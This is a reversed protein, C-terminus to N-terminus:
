FFSQNVIVVDGEQLIVDPIKGSLIAGLDVKLLTEAGTTNHRKVQLNKSARRQLGGSLAIARLVTAGGSAPLKYVGPNRVSGVVSVSIAADLPVSVVDGAKLRINWRPDGRVLLENLPVSLRASGGDPLRRFVYLVSGAGDSLGGSEALLELLNREGMLPYAGAHDVAGLLSVRRSHFEKILVSVQPDDVYEGRLKKAVQEAAAPATLDLVNVVGLLPLIITGDSEVRVTRNLQETEFVRVEILDEPGIRYQKAGSSGFDFFLSPDVDAPEIQFGVPYDAVRPDSTAVANSASEPEPEPPTAAGSPAPALEDPMLSPTRASDRPAQRSAGASKAHLGLELRGPRAIISHWVPEKMEFTFRAFTQDPPAAEDYADMSLEQSVVRALMQNSEPVNPDELPNRINLIDLVVQRSEEMVYIRHDLVGDAELSTTLVGAGLEVNLSELNKAAASQASSSSAGLLTGLLVSSAVIRYM